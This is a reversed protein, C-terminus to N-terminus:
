TEVERYERIRADHGGRGMKSATAKIGMQRQLIGLGNGSQQRTSRHIDCDPCSIAGLPVLQYSPMTKQPTNNQLYDRERMISM